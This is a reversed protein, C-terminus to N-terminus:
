TRGCAIFEMFIAYSHSTSFNKEGQKEQLFLRDRAPWGFGVSFLSIWFLRFVGKFTWVICSECALSRSYGCHFVGPRDPVDTEATMKPPFCFFVARGKDAMNMRAKSIHKAIAQLTSCDGMWPGTRASSTIGHCLRAIAVRGPGALASNGMVTLLMSTVVIGFFASVFRGWAVVRPISTKSLSYKHIFHPRLKTFKLCNFAIL